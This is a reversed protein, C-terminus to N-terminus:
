AGQGAAWLVTLTTALKRLNAPPVPKRVYHLREPPRVRASLETEAYDSFGSVFVIHVDGDLRRIAEATSLGDPGPPMRVDLFIVAYPRGDLLAAEVHHLAGNGCDAYDVELRKSVSGTSAPAAGFLEEELHALGAKPEVKALREFVHRYSAIVGLDDDVVLIRLCGSPM